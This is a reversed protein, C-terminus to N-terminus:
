ASSDEHIVVNWYAGCGHGSEPRGPHTESCLCIMRLQTGTAPVTKRGSFLSGFVNRGIVKKPWPYSMAHGCRQCQGVLRVGTNSEVTTCTDAFEKYRPDTVKAYPLATGSGQEPGANAPDATMGYDPM